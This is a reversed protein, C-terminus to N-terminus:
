RDSGAFRGGLALRKAFQALEHEQYIIVGLVVLLAVAGIAAHMLITSFVFEACLYKLISFDKFFEFYYNGCVYSSM